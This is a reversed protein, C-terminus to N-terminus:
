EEEEEHQFLYFLFLSYLTKRHSHLGIIARFLSVLGTLWGALWGLWGVPMIEGMGKKFLSKRGRGLVETLAGGAIERAVIEIDVSSHKMTIVPARHTYKKRGKIKRRAYIVYFFCLQSHLRRPFLSHYQSGQYIQFPEINFNM